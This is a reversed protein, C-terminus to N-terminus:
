ESHSTVPHLHWCFDFCCTGYKTFNLVRFWQRDVLLLVWIHIMGTKRGAYSCGHLVLGQYPVTEWSIAFNVVV